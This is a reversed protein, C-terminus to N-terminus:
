PLNQVARHLEGARKVFETLSEMVAAEQSEGSTVAVVLRDHATVFERAAVRPDVRLTVLSATAQQGAELATVRDAGGGDVRQAAYIITNTNWRVRDTSHNYVLLGVARALTRVPVCTQLLATRLAEYRRRELGQVAAFAALRVAVKVVPGIAAGAGGAFAGLTGAVTGATEALGEAAQDFAARDAANSIAKLAEGYERLVQLIEAETAPRRLTGGVPVAGVRTPRAGDVAPREPVIQTVAVGRTVAAPTAQCVQPPDDGDRERSAQGGPQAPDMVEPPDGSAAGGAVALKAVDPRTGRRPIQRRLDERTADRGAATTPLPTAQGQNPLAIRFVCPEGAACTPIREVRTPGIGTLLRDLRGRDAEEGAAIAAGATTMTALGEGLKGIRETYPSNSCAGVALLLSFTALRVRMM